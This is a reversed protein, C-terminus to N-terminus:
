VKFDPRGSKWGLDLDYSRAMFVRVTYSAPSNFVKGLSWALASSQWKSPTQRDNKEKNAEKQYILLYIHVKVVCIKRFYYKVGCYIHFAFKYQTLVTVLALIQFRLLPRFIFPIYMLFSHLVEPLGFLCLHVIWWLASTETVMNSDAWRRGFPVLDEWFMSWCLQCHICVGIFRVMDDDANCLELLLWVTCWVSPFLSLNHFHWKRSSALHHGWINACRCCFLSLSGFYHRPIQLKNRWFQCPSLINPERKGGEWEM